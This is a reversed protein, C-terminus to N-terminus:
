KSTEADTKAKKAEEKAKEVAKQGDDFKKYIKANMKVGGILETKDGKVQGTRVKQKKTTKNAANYVYLYAHNWSDEETDERKLATTPVLLADKKEYVTLEVSGTMSPFIAAEMPLDVSLLAVYEGGPTPLTNRETVNTVYRIDPFATPAITGKTGAKIWHLEKEPVTMRVLAPKTDIITFLVQDNRVEKEIQMGKAVEAANNWKGKSFEGSYDGYYVVGDCPAKLVLMKKDNTFKKFQEALKAHTQKANEYRLQTQELVFDFTEKSQRYSLERLKAFHRMMAENRPLSFKLMRDAYMKDMEYYFEYVEVMFKSRKLIFEETDEVLDDDAYMKELQKLEEKASDVSFQATKIYFEPMKKMWEQEVELFYKLDEDAYKKYREMDERNLPHRLRLYKLSIEQEKLSMESQRLARKKEALAENYKKANFEILVDGKRVTEGHAVAKKLEFNTFVEGKLRVQEAKKSEFVGNLKVTLRLPEKKLDLTDPKPEEKKSEEKKAEEKKVAEDKKPEAKKEEEKVAVMKAEEKKADAEKPAKQAADEKKASEEKVVKKPRPLLLRTRASNGPEALVSDSQVLLVLVFAVLLGSVFYRM